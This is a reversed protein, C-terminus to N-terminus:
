MGPDYVCNESGFDDSERCACDPIWPKGDILYFYKFSKQSPLRVEWSKRDKTVVDHAVFGDLSSAFQVNIAESSLLIMRVYGGDRVVLHEAVAANAMPSLLFLLLLPKM